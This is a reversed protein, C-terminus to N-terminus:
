NSGKVRSLMTEWEPVYASWDFQKSALARSRAASAVRDSRIRTIHSLCSMAAKEVDDIEVLIGVDKQEILRSVDGLGPSSAVSLGSALYEGFKIPSAVRNLSHPARLLFGLDAAALYEPVRDRDVSLRTLRSQPLISELESTMETQHTMLLFRIHDDGSMNEWVRLMEPILQYHHTGGAYVLLVDDPTVGLEARVRDRENAPEVYRKTDVCSPIVTVEDAGYDTCLLDATYSSVGAYQDAHKIAM